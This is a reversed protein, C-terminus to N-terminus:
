FHLPQNQMSPKDFYSKVAARIESKTLHPPTTAPTWSFHEPLAQYLKENWEEQFIRARMPDSCRLKYEFEKLDRVLKDHTARTRENTPETVLRGAIQEAQKLYGDIVKPDTEKPVFDVQARFPDVRFSPHNEMNLGYNDQLAAIDRNSVGPASGDDVVLTRAFEAAQPTMRGAGLLGVVLASLWGCEKTEQEKPTRRVLSMPKHHSHAVEVPPQGSSYIPM